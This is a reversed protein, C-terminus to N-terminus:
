QILILVQERVKRYCNARTKRKKKQIPKRMKDFKCSKEFSHVSSFEGYKVSSHRGTRKEMNLNM